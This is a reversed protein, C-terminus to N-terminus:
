AVVHLMCTLHGSSLGALICRLIDQLLSPLATTTEERENTSQSYLTWANKSSSGAEQFFPKVNDCQQMENKAQKGIIQSM